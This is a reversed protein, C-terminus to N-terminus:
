SEAIWAQRHLILIASTAELGLMMKLGPPPPFQLAFSYAFRDGFWYENLGGRAAGPCGPM